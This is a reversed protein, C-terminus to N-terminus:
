GHGAGPPMPSVGNGLRRQATQMFGPSDSREVLKRRGKRDPKRYFTFTHRYDTQTLVERAGLAPFETSTFTSLAASDSPPYPRLEDTDNWGLIFWGGPRLCRRCAVFSPEAEERTEIATVMFVGNCVIADFYNEPVHRGLNRLADTVHRRAGYRQKDPDIDLTWYEKDRFLKGYPKTYWECGVFLIRSVLPDDRLGSLIVTELMRRDETLHFSGFVRLLSPANRELFPRTGRKMGDYFSPPM